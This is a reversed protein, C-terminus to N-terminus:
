VMSKFNNIRNVVEGAFSEVESKLESSRNIIRSLPIEWRRPRYALDRLEDDRYIVTDFFLKEYVRSYIISPLQRIFRKISTELKAITDGKVRRTINILAIGLVKPEKKSKLIVDPIVEKLLIKVGLLSLEEMNSPIIIYDAVYLGWMTPAFLEPPTDCIVYDYGKNIAPETMLRSYVAQTDWAPIMGRFVNIIYNIGSPILGVEGPVKVGLDIQRIKFRRQTALELVGDSINEIENIRLFLSSLHSQPDLDLMLVRHGRMALGYALLATLTTKGTGGKQNTITIVKPPM